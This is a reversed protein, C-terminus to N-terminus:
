KAKALAARAVNRAAYEEETDSDQCLLNYLAASLATKQERLLEIEREMRKINALSAAKDQPM